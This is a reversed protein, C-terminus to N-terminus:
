FINEKTRKQKEKKTIVNHTCHKNINKKKKTKIKNKSEEIVKLIQKQLVM